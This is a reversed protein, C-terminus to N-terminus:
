PSTSSGATTTPPPSQTPTLTPTPTSTATPTAPATTSPAPTSSAPARSTTVASSTASRTPSPSQSRPASHVPAVNGVPAPSSSTAQQARHTSSRHVPATSQVVAPEDTHQQSAPRAVVYVAAAGVLALLAVLAALLGGRRRRPHLLAPANHDGAMSAAPPAATSGALPAATSGAPPAAPLPEDRRLARAVDAAPPRDQPEGATMAALLAPWPRPLDSPIEPARSLRAVAAEVPSGEYARVGTLAELLVLGLAYIDAEPGVDAGRAQEPALYCATGLTLEASTMRESGLMRVIGFDSLRARIGGTLDPGLLINAPKVDRHVMGEAHVYALADAIQAGVERLAAEPIPGQALRAGFSPGAVLEMVLFGPGAGGSLSADFLTILNPHNLRALAQLELEQRTRGDQQANAEVLSRFVKVAVDRGLLEDHARFVVAMGGSGIREIVRYRGALRWDATPLPQTPMAQTDTGSDEDIIAGPHSSCANPTKQNACIENPM